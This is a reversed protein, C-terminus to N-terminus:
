FTLSVGFSWTRSFPYANGRGSGGSIGEPDFLRMLKTGTFINDASVFLRARSLGIKGTLNQPLTYGLQLNKLRIYSADHLYRTQVQQNKAQGMVPRPYYSDINAPIEHGALGTPEARYYDGHEYFGCSWWMGGSGIGWFQEDSLWVDHKLVGQFFLRVDFGKYDASLNIGYFYHSNSNGIVKLDGHDELTQAGKTIKGDGNQDKYMIDGKGWQSGVASQSVKDFYEADQDTRAIDITEFGWIQGMEVGNNYSNISHTTNDPYNLIITKSDSINASISYGLGFKTRDRWSFNLEWGVTKLDCNNAQPASLGLVSPLDKAPGVMNNTFRQFYEFSGTFRNNFMGWDLGANYTNVKEWTLSSSILGGVRATNPKQGGILWSGNASGLTMTRYTPYTGSTNQNSMTGFSARLKLMNVTKKAEAFFPEQAINWGASFSPSWTWRSDQRFRSTGDYRLNAEFLYRGKYDYNIRGFFGVTSWDSASGSISPTTAEGKGNLGTTLSLVPLNVDQVGNRSASFNDSRSENSQFGLMAKFNHDNAVTFSYDSYINWGYQDSRSNSNSISTSSTTPVINGETDHDQCPLSLTVGNSVNNRFNFEFHTRWNKIPEIVLAAQQSLNNSENKNFGSEELKQALSGGSGNGTFFGNEDFVPLNPWCQRGLEAYMGSIYSNPRNTKNRIFRVNYSFTAWKTIQASFNASVNFRQTHDNGYRILGDSDLFGLSAYYQIGKTGGSLSVNHEQAFSNNKYLEAYWDTNAFGTTYPDYTPKGWYKGDKSKLLGGKNTGGAAQFDLMRQLTENSFQPNDGNNRSADNMYVAFTYSDMQRPLLIPSQIRFNNNYSIRAKGDAGRKTTILVVGFAARSGYISSSAADKLVSINDVDQPNITNIDGEMGDILILPSDSSGSGITGTGRVRVNYTSNIDGSSHTLQLGPLLGQLASPLDNVPRAEIDESNAVAVAGTLNVKKQTGFGVVVVEELATTDEKLTVPYNARSASTVVEQTYFGVCSVVLTAGPTVNLEWKGDMDTMTGNTTGKELINVGVLTEANGDIVAGSVKVKSQAFAFQSSFLCVTTFLAALLKTINKSM